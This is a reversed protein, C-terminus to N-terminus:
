RQGELPAREAAAHEGSVLALLLSHSTSGLVVRSYHAELTQFSRAPPAMGPSPAELRAPSVGSSARRRGTQGPRQLAATCPRTM